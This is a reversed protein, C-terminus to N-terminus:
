SAIPRNVKSYAEVVDEASGVIKRSFAYAADDARPAGSTRQQVPAGTDASNLFQSPDFSANANSPDSVDIGDVFVKVHNSNTGRMFLSTQGGPGGTQVVNLGPVLKLVDPLTPAQLAAIDAATVVTISNAVQSEPTPIRTATVVVADANELDTAAAALSAVALSLLSTFIVLRRM